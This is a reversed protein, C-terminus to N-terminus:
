FILKKIRGNGFDAIYLCEDKGILVDSPRSLKVKSLIGVENGGTNGAVTSGVLTSVVGSKTIKRISNNLQDAIYLNDYKDFCIGRPGNFMSTSLTGNFNGATGSKGAYIIRNGNNVIDHKYIVHNVSDAFYIQGASDIAIGTPKGLNHSISTGTTGGLVFRNIQKANTESIYMQSNNILVKITSGAGELYKTYSGSPTIKTINFHYSTYANTVSTVADTTYINDSSDIDMLAISPATLFDTPIVQLDVFQTVIKDTDIKYIRPGSSSFINNNSDCVIGNTPVTAYLEVMSVKPKVSKLIAFSNGVPM